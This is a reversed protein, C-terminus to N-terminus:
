IVVFICKLDHRRKVINGCRACFSWVHILLGLSPSLSFRKIEAAGKKRNREFM